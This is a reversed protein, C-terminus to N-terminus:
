ALVRRAFAQVKEADQEVTKAYLKAWDSAFHHEIPEGGFMEQRKREIVLEADSLGAPCPSIEPSRGIIKLLILQIASFVFLLPSVAAVVISPARDKSGYRWILLSTGFLYVIYITFVEIALRM